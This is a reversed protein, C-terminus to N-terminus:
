SVKIQLNNRRITDSLEQAILPNSLTIENNNGFEGVPHNYFYVKNGVIAFYQSLVYGRLTGDLFSRFSKVQITPSFVDELLALYLSSEKLKGQSTVELVMTNKDSIGRCFQKAPIRQLFVLGTPGYFWGRTIPLFEFQVDTGAYAFFEGTSTVFVVRERDVKRIYSLVKQKKEPHLFWGYSQSYRQVFDDRNYLTLTDLM